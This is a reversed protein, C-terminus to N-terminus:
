YSHVYNNYAKQLHEDILHLHITKKAKNAVRHIIDFVENPVGNALGLGIAPIAFDNMDTFIELIDTLGDELADGYFMDEIDWHTYQTYLNVIVLEESVQTCNFTGLKGRSGKPTTNDSEIVKPYKRSIFKAIGKRMTNFCNCGHILVPADTEFIDNTHVKVYNINM